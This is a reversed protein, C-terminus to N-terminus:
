GCSHTDILVLDVDTFEFLCLARIMSEFDGVLCVQAIEDGNAENIKAEWNHLSNDRQATAPYQEETLKIVGVKKGEAILGSALALLTLTRGGKRAPSFFAVVQM